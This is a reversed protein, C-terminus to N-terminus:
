QAAKWAEMEDALTRAEQLKRLQRSTFVPGKQREYAAAWARVITPANEDNARLVFIPEEDAAQNLCSTRCVLELGKKM